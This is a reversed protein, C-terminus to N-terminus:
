AGFGAAGAGTAGTAGAAGRGSGCCGTSIGPNGKGIGGRKVGGGITSVGFGAGAGCAAGDAGFGGSSGCCYDM